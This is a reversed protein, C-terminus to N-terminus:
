KHTQDLRNHVHNECLLVVGPILINYGGFTTKIIINSMRHLKHSLKAGIDNMRYLISFNIYNYLNSLFYNHLLLHKVDDLIFVKFNSIQFVFYKFVFFMKIDEIDLSLVLESLKSIKLKETCNINQNFLNM